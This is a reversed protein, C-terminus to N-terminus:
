DYCIFDGKAAGKGFMQTLCFSKLFEEGIDYIRFMSSESFGLFSIMKKTDYGEQLPFNIFEMKAMFSGEGILSDMQLMSIPHDSFMVFSIFRLIDM